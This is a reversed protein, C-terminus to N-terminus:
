PFLAMSHKLWHTNLFANFLVLFFFFLHPSVGCLQEFICVCMQTNECQNNTFGSYLDVGIYVFYFSVQTWGTSCHEEQQLKAVRSADNVFLDSHIQNVKTLVFCCFLLYVQQKVLQFCYFSLCCPINGRERVPSLQIAVMSVEQLQLTHIFILKSIVSLSTLLLSMNMSTYPQWQHACRHMLCERQKKARQDGQWASM